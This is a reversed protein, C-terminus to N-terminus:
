DRWRQQFWTDPLPPMGDHPRKLDPPPTDAAGVGNGTPQDAPPPNPPSRPRAPGPSSAGVAPGMRSALSGPAPSAAGRIPTGNNESRM